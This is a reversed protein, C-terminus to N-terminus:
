ANAKKRRSLVGLGAVGSLLLWAAGPLPIPTASMSAFEFANQTPSAFIVTDFTLDSVTVFALGTSNAALTVVPDTGAIATGPIITAVTAVTEGSRQFTLTNYTDPSGWLFSFSTQLIEFGLTATTPLNGPGVAFYQIAEFNVTGLYEFPSRFTGTQSGQRIQPATGVWTGGALSVTDTTIGVPLDASDTIVDVSLAQASTGMMVVAAAAVLMQRIM